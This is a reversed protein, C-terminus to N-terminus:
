RNMDAIVVNCGKSHMLRAAAEGLGSAGGTIFVVMEKGIKM